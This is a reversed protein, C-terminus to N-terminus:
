ERRLAAQGSGGKRPEGAKLRGGKTVGNSEGGTSPPPSPLPCSFCIEPPPLSPLPQPPPLGNPAPSPPGTELLIHSIPSTLAACAHRHHGMLGLTREQEKCVPRAGAAEPAFLGRQPPSSPGALAGWLRSRSPGRLASGPAPGAVPQFLLREEEMGSPKRRKEAAEATWIAIGPGLRRCLFLAALCPSEGGFQTGATDSTGAAARSRM